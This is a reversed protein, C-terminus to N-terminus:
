PARGCVGEAEQMCSAPAPNALKRGPVKRSEQCRGAGPCGPHPRCFELVPWGQIPNPLPPQLLFPRLSSNGQGKTIGGPLESQPPHLFWTVEMPLTPLSSGARPLTVASTLNWLAQSHPFPWTREPKSAGPTNIFFKDHAHAKVPFRVTVEQSMPHREVTSGCRGPRNRTKIIHCRPILYCSPFSFRLSIQSCHTSDRCGRHLDVTLEM